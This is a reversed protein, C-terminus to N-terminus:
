NFIFDISQDTNNWELHAKETGNLNLGLKLASLLGNNTYTYQYSYSDVGTASQSTAGVLYLKSTNNSSAVKKAAVLASNATAALVTSNSAIGDNLKTVGYVSTSATTISKATGSQGLVTVNVTPAASGTGAGITISPSIDVWKPASTAGNGVLAQTDATGGTTPAYFSATSSAKSSNNLTVATGGAHTSNAVNGLGVDSKTLALATKITDITVVDAATENITYTLKKNTTDWTVATVGATKAVAYDTYNNSDLLHFWNGWETTAGQRRYVGNINFALEHSNGGSSDNWGRLGVVYSYTDTYPAGIASNRKLGQFILRNSYTNPTTNENRKDGISTLEYHTHSSPAAGINAATPTTWTGKETLWKTTSGSSTNLTVGSDKIEKGTAGSFIALRNATSSAPGIVAGDINTQAVTWHSDNAVTGNTVCIILDGIECQINAYKGATIVRYTWGVNHTAPLATVTAGSENDGITGKFIMADNAAFANDVYEKTAIMKSDSSSSPTVSKPIGTFTPSAIPAYGKKALQYYLTRGTILNTDSSTVDANSSNDTVGLLTRANTEDLVRRWNQWTGNNKGRISIQGTRYDGYIQHKWSASYFQGYIAGDSQQYNWDARTLGTVYGVTNTTSEINSNTTTTAKFLTTSVYDTDAKVAISGLGLNTRAGAATTANTGGHEIAVTGTVNTATGNVDSVIKNDALEIEWKNAFASEEETQVESLLTPNSTSPFYETIRIDVANQYTTYSTNVFFEFFVKHNTNDRVVRFKEIIKGGVSSGLQIINVTSWGITVRINYAESSPSSFRRSIYLDYTLNGLYNSNNLNLQFIKIWGIYTKGAYSSHSYYKINSISNESASAILSGTMTDGSKSVKENALDYATKVAKSSASVDSSNSNVADSISRWTNTDKINCIDGNPLEIKSITYEAM